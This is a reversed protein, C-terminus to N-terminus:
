GTASAVTSAFDRRSVGAIQHDADFVVVAIRYTRWRSLDDPKVGLSHAHETIPLPAPQSPVPKTRFRTTGYFAWFALWTVLCAADFVFGKLPDWIELIHPAKAHTLEFTPPTLYDYLLHLGYRMSQIIAIWAIVTLLLDRFVLWVPVRKAQILPPAPPAQLSTSM